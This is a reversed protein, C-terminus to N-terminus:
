PHQPKIGVLDLPTANVESIHITVEPTEGAPATPFVGNTAFTFVVPEVTTTVSFKWTLQLATDTIAASRPVYAVGDTYNLGLFSEFKGGKTITV